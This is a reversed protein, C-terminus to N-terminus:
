DAARRRLGQFWNSVVTVPASADGSPISVLFRQGDATVAYRNVGSPRASFLARPVGAEFTPTTKVEVVNIKNEPGVFFIENGRERWHPEIGGNTSIQWKGAGATGDQAVPRVYIEYRGSENSQYVAWKGDPAYEGWNEDFPTKV